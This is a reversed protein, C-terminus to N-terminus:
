YLHPDTPTFSKKPLWVFIKGVLYEEGNFILPLLLLVARSAEAAWHRSPVVAAKTNASLDM